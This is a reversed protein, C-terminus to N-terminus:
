MKQAILHSAKRRAEIPLDSPLRSPTPRRRALAAYRRTSPSDPFAFTWFCDKECGHPRPAHLHHPDSSRTSVAISSRLSLSIRLPQSGLAM